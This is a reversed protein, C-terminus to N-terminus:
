RTLRREARAQRQASVDKAASIAARALRVSSHLASEGEEQVTREAFPAFAELLAECAALLAPRRTREPRLELRDEVDRGNGPIITIVIRKARDPGFASSLATNTLRRVSKSLKTM